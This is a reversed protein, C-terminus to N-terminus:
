KENPMADMLVVCMEPLRATLAVDLALEEAKNTQRWLLPDAKLLVKSAEQFNLNAALHLSTNKNSDVATPKAGQEQLLGSLIRATQCFIFIIANPLFM